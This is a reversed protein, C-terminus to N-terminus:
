ASHKDKLLIEVEAIYHWLIRRKLNLYSSNGTNLLQFFTCIGPFCAVIESIVQAIYM